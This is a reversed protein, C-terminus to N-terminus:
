AARLEPHRKALQDLKENIAQRIIRSYPIDTVETAKILRDRMERPAKVNLNVDQTKKM